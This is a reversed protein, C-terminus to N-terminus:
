NNARCNLLNRVLRLIAYLLFPAGSIIGDKLAGLEMEQMIERTKGVVRQLPWTMLFLLGLIIKEVLTYRPYVITHM